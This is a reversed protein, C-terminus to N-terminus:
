NLRKRRPSSSRPYKGTISFLANTMLAMNPSFVTESSMRRL